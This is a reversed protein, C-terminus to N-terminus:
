RFGPGATDELSRSSYRSTPCPRRLHSHTVGYATTTAAAVLPAAALILYASLILRTKRDTFEQEQATM